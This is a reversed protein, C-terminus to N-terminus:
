SATATAAAKRISNNLRKKLRAVTNKHVLGKRATRDATSQMIKYAVTATDANGVEARAKKITTRYFTRIPQNHGKRAIAQRARKVSQQSNAM